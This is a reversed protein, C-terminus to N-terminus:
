QQGRCYAQLLMGALTDYWNTVLHIGDVVLDLRELSPTFLDFTAHWAAKKRTHYTGGQIETVTQRVFPLIAQKTASNM